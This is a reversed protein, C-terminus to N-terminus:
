FFYRGGLGGNFLLNLRPVILLVPAIEVFVNFHQQRHIWDLGIPVRIGMLFDDYRDRYYSDGFNFMVGPGYYVALRERSRIANYNHILYDAHIHISSWGYERNRDYYHDGCYRRDNCYGRNDYYFNNDYCRGDSYGCDDRNDYWGYYNWGLALDLATNSSTWLKASFATPNGVIFGLGFDGARAFLGTCFILCILLAVYTKSRM